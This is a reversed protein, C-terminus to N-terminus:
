PYRKARGARPKGATLLAYRCRGAARARQVCQAEGEVPFLGGRWNALLSGTGCACLGWGHVSRQHTEAVEALTVQHPTTRCGTMPVAACRGALAHSQLAWARLGEGAAPQVQITLASPYETN